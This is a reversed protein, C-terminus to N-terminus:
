LQVVENLPGWRTFCVGNYHEGDKQLVLTLPKNITENGTENVPKNMAEIIPETRENVLERGSGSVPKDVLTNMSENVQESVTESVAENIHKNASGNVPESPTEKIEEDRSPEVLIKSIRYKHGNGELILLKVNLANSIINPVIDCFENAYMQSEIYKQM